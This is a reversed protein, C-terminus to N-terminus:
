RHIVLYPDMLRVDSYKLHKGRFLSLNTQCVLPNLQEGRFLPGSMQCGLPNLHEGRFLTVSM